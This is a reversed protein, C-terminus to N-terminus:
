PTRTATRTVDHHQQKRRPKGFDLELCIRKNKVAFNRRGFYYVVSTVVMTSINNNSSM